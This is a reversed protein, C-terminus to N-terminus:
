EAQDPKDNRQREENGRKTHRTMGRVRDLTEEIAELLPETRAVARDIESVLNRIQGVLRRSGVVASDVEQYRADLSLIEERSRDVLDQTRREMGTLVGEQVAEEARAQQAATVMRGHQPGGPATQVSMKEIDASTQRSVVQLERANAELQVLQERPPQLREDVGDTLDGAITAIKPTNFIQAM